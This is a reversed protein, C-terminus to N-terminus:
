YNGSERDHCASESAFSEIAARGGETIPLWPGWAHATAHPQGDARLKRGSCRWRYDGDGDRILSVREVRM